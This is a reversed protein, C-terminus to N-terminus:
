PQLEWDHEAALRRVAAHLDPPFRGLSVPATNAYQRVDWKFGNERAQEAEFAPNNVQTSDNADRDVDIEFDYLYSPWCNCWFHVPPMFRVDDIRFVKNELPACMACSDGNPEFRWAVAESELAQAYEGAGHSMAFNQFHVIDAHHPNEGLWGDVAAMEPLRQRFDHLTEGAAFSEALAAHIKALLELDYVGAVRWARSRAAAELEIFTDPDLLLRERFLAIAREFPLREFDLEAHVSLRVDAARAGSKRQKNAQQRFADRGALHSALDFQSELAVLESFDWQEALAAIAAQAAQHDGGADALAAAIVGIANRTHEQAAETVARLWYAMRSIPGGKRRMLEDLYRHARIRHDCERHPEGGFLSGLGSARGPLIPDEEDDSGEMPVGIRESLASQRIRAGCDNIARSIVTVAGQDDRTEEVVRRFQPVPADPGFKLAVMPALLCKVVMATERRIDDNRYDERVENHVTGLAQTGKDGQSTTLTQGLWMKAYAANIHEIRAEHPWDGTMAASKVDVETGVKTVLAGGGALDRFMKLLDDQEKKTANEMYHAIWVPLGFNQLGYDWAREGLRKGLHRIAARRLLGGHLANDGLPYRTNVIFKGPTQEDLPEGDQDNEDRRIRLRGPKEGDVCILAPHVRHIAVPMFEGDDDVDWEVESVVPGRDISEAHRELMEDFGALRRLKPLLWEIVEDVTKLDDEALQTGEEASIIEWVLGTFALRRTNTVCSLDQDFKFMQDFLAHMAHLDDGDLTKLFQVAKEATLGDVTAGSSISEASATQRGRDPAKPEPRKVANILWRIM